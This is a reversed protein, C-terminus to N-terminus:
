AVAAKGKAIGQRKALWLQRKRAREAKNKERSGKSAYSACKTNKRGYKKAGGGKKSQGAAM